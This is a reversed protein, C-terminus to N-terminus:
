DALGQFAPQRESTAREIRHAIEDAAETLVGLYKGVMEDLPVAGAVWSLNICAFVKEGLRVPVAIAEASNRSPGWYGYGPARTAYGRERVRELSALVAARDRAQSDYPDGSKSLRALITDREETPCFALYARGLASLLVHVRYGMRARNVLFPTQQRNTELIEMAGNKYVGIDSPWLVQRCLADLVPGAQEAVAHHPGVDRGMFRVRAGVRYRGDGLARHALGAEELTKLIRLLTPKALRTVQHLEDLSYAPRDQLVRFVELGRALARISKVNHRRAPRFLPREAAM